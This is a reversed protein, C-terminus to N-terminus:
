GGADTQGSYSCSEDVLQLNYELQECSEAPCRCANTARTVGCAENTGASLPQNWDGFIRALQQEAQRQQGTTDYMLM